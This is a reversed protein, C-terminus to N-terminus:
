VQDRHNGPQHEFSEYWGEPDTQQTQTRIAGLRASSRELLRRDSAFVNRRDLAANLPKDAAFAKNAAPNTRRCVM